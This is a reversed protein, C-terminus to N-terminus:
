VAKGGYRWRGSTDCQIYRRLNFKKVLTEFRNM